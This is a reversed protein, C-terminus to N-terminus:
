VGSENKDKVKADEEKKKEEDASAAKDKEEIYLTAFQSYLDKDDLIEDIDLYENEDVNVETYKDNDIDYKKAQNENLKNIGLDKTIFQQLAKANIHASM